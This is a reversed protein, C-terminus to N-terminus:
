DKKKTELKQDPLVHPRQLGAPTLVVAAAAAVDVLVEVGRYTRVHPLM